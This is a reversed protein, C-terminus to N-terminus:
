LPFLRDSILPSQKRNNYIYMEPVKEKSDISVLDFANTSIIPIKQNPDKHVRTPPLGMLPIYYKGNDWVNPFKIKTYGNVKFSPIDNCHGITLFDNKKDYKKLGHNLLKM